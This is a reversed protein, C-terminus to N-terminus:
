EALAKREKAERAVLEKYADEDWYQSIADEYLRELDDPDLADLEVQDVEGFQEYFAAKRSDQKKEADIKNSPLNYEAIHDIGRDPDVM